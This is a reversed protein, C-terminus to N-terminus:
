PPKPLLAGDPVPVAAMRGTLQNGQSSANWYDATQKYPMAIHCEVHRLASLLPHITVAPDEGRALAEECGWAVSRTLLGPGTKAWVSDNDRRLLAQKAAVAAHVIVPHAPEAMLLNNAISGHHEQFVVLGSEGATFADLSGILRDDCDAYIGGKVALFCLRFFDSQEAPHRALHLAAAWDGGLEAALFRLAGVRNFLHYAYGEATRWSRMIADLPAPPRGTNWYQVITRPIRGPGARSVPPGAALRALHADLAQISPGLLRADRASPLPASGQWTALHAETLHQGVLTLGFHVARRANALTSGEAVLKGAEEVRGFRLLVELRSRRLARRLNPDTIADMLALARKPQGLAVLAGIGARKDAACSPEAILEEAEHQAAEVQGTAILAKLHRRRLLPDDPAFRRAFSLYRLAAERRAAGVLLDALFNIEAVPRRPPRLRRALAQDPGADMAIVRLDFLSRDPEALRDRLLARIRGPDVAGAWPTRLIGLAISVPLLPRALLASLLRGCIAPLGHLQAIVYLAQLDTQKTQAPLAAVAEIWEAVEASWRGIDLQPPIRALLAAAAPDAERVVRDHLRRALEMLSTQDRRQLAATVRARWATIHAPDAALVADFMAEASAHDGSAEHAYGLELTVHVDDPRDLHLPTLAAIAEAPRHLARLLSGRKFRLWRDQPLEVLARTVAALAAEADGAKLLIKVRGVWAPRRASDVALVQDFLALAAAAEGALSEAEALELAVDSDAPDEAHLPRLVALADQVRDLRALFFCRRLLLRRDRPDEILGAEIEALAEARRQDIWLANARSIVARSLSPPRPVPRSM